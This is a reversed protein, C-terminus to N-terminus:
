KEEYATTEKWEEAVQRCARPYFGTMACRYQPAQSFSGTETLVMAACTKCRDKEQCAACQAPLRIAATEKKIQAWASAFDGAFVNPANEGPFMGCPLLRGDWTVWFGCRGARCTMVDGDETYTGCDEPDSPLPTNEVQRLFREPGQTLCTIRASYYASEEPTFRHNRGVMSPDRRMPPFMYGSAQLFLEKEQAYHFMADLDEANHPTLSCNLKVALGAEKLLCIARDVQTFGRPNGCLRSYTDNSAGYLTINLRVPPYQCLKEVAKEDILTGNTNVSVLLGLKQLERLMDPLDPRLFPEGGTLLLYLMGQSQADQALSLWQETTALPAISEQQAKTMRVYCMKCAMNCVPTLEFTGSLPLGLMAAKRSLYETAMPEQARNVM